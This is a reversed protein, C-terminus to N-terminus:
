HYLAVLVIFLAAYIGGVVLGPPLGNDARPEPPYLKRQWQKAERRVQLREWWNRLLYLTIGAAVISVFLHM